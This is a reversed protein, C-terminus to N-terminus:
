PMQELKMSITYHETGLYSINYYSGDSNPVIRVEINSRTRPHPFDFRATGKITIKIFDDLTQIQTNDMVFQVDFTSAKIGRRRMKAAGADMPTVLTLVGSSESYSTTVFQPLSPPFTYAAM